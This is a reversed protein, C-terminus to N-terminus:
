VSNIALSTPRLSPDEGELRVGGIVIKKSPVDLDVRITVYRDDVSRDGLPALRDAEVQGRVVAAVVPNVVRVVAPVRDLHPADPEVGVEPSVRPADIEDLHINLAGLGARDSAHARQEM